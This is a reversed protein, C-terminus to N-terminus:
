EIIFLYIFLYILLYLFLVRVQFYHKSKASGQTRIWVAQQKSPVQM